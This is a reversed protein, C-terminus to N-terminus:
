FMLGSFVVYCGVMGAAAIAWWYLLNRYWPTGLRQFIQLSSWDAVLDKTTKEAPPPASALSVIVQLIICAAWVITARLTFSMESSIQIVISALIGFIITATASVGNARRWLIGVLFVAAFPPAFHAYLNQIYVFVSQGLLGIFPALLVAIALVVLSTWKGMRTLSAEDADPKLFKKYLDLTVITSTSNMVSDISSQIAGFLAALLLGKMGTQVYTTVLVAYTKDIETKETIGPEMAFYILGPIVVILPLFIKMFMALVIGMRAHWDDRAALVRQVMFQNICNYWISISFWATFITVWPVIPHNMPQFVSLREYDKSGIHEEGSAALANAWADGKGLNRDVMTEWGALVGQGDGLAELGLWTVLVGGVVMISTQFLDTWAVSRLGGYIAYSGATVAMVIVGTWIDWDFMEQLGLAAAYLVAALFATVNAIVTLVAFLLRCTSNYRRELFEPATFVRSALLFPIFFWILMSFAFINGWEWHAVCVGYIYAAGVMGIFHETSINSGIFSSGIVYWPLDRGALFYDESTQKGRRGVFLGLGVLVVFYSVFVAIDLSSLENM